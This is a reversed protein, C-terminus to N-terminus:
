HWPLITKMSYIEHGQTEIKYYIKLLIHKIKKLLRTSNLLSKIWIQATMQEIENSRYIWITETRKKIKYNKHTWTGHRRYKRKRKEKIYIINKKNQMYVETEGAELRGM